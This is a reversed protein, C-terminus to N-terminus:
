MTLPAFIAFRDCGRRTALARSGNRGRYFVPVVSIAVAVVASV